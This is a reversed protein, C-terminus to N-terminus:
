GGSSASGSAGFGGRAATSTAATSRTAPTSGGSATTNRSVTSGSSTAPSARTTRENFSGTSGGSYTGVMAPPVGARGGAVVQGQERENERSGYGQIYVPRSNDLARGLMFGMMAPLWIDGGGAGSGGGGRVSTCNVHGQGLCAEQSQYRPSTNTHQESARSFASECDKRGAAQCQEISEYIAQKEPKDEEQCAALSIMSVTGLLVLAISKSHKM